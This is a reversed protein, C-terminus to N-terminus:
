GRKKDYKFLHAVARKCSVGRVVDSAPSPSAGPERGKLVAWRSAAACSYGRALANSILPFDLRTTGTADRRAAVDEVLLQLRADEEPLWRRNCRAEDLKLGACASAHKALRCTVNCPIQQTQTSSRHCCGKVGPLATETPQVGGHLFRVTLCFM